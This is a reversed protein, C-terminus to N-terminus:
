NLSIGGWNGVMLIPSSTNNAVVKKVVWERFIKANHSQVRFVLAIIMELGYYDPYIRMGEITCSMKENGGAIASKEITRIHRKATQYYIDFLYAIEDITMRVENPVTVVGNDSITIMNREEKM